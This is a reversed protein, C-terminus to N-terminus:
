SQQCVYSPITWWFNDDYLMLQLYDAYFTKYLLKKVSHILDNCHLQISAPNTYDYPTARLGLYVYVIVLHKEYHNNQVFDIKAM